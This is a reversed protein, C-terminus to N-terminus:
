EVCGRGPLVSENKGISFAGIVYSDSQCQVRVFIVFFFGGLIIEQLATISDYPAAHSIVALLRWIGILFLERLNCAILFDANYPVVKACDLCIAFVNLCFGLEREHALFVVVLVHLLITVPEKFRHQELDEAEQSHKRILKVM